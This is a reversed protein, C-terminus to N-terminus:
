EHLTSIAQITGLYKGKLNIVMTGLQSPTKKNGLTLKNNKFCKQCKM